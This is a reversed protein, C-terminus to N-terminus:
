EGEREDRLVRKIEVLDSSNNIEYWLVDSEAAPPRQSHDLREFEYEEGEEHDFVIVLNDKNQGVVAGTATEKSDLWVVKVKYPRQM